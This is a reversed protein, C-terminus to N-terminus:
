KQRFKKRFLKKKLFTKNKQNGGGGKKFRQIEASLKLSFKLM